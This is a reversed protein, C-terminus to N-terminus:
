TKEFFILFKLVKKRRANGEIGSALCLPVLFLLSFLFEIMDVLVMETLLVVAMLDPLSVTM